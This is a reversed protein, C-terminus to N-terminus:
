NLPSCYEHDIGGARVTVCATDPLGFADFADQVATPNDKCGEDNTSFIDGVRLGDDGASRIQITCLDVVTEDWVLRGSLDEVDDVTLPHVYLIMLVTHIGPGGHDLDIQWDAPTLVVAKDAPTDDLFEGVVVFRGRGIIRDDLVAADIGWAYSWGYPQEYPGDWTIGDTSFWMQGNSTAAETEGLVIWGRAGAAIKAAHAFPVDAREWGLGDDSVWIAGGDGTVRGAAVLRGDRTVIDYVIAYRGFPSEESVPEWTNGDTSFWVLPGCVSMNPNAAGRRPTLAIFGGNTAVVPRLGAVVYEGDTSPSCAVDTLHQIAHPSPPQEALHFDTGDASYFLQDDRIAVIGNPGVVLQNAGNMGLSDADDIRLHEEEVWQIGDWTLRVVGFRNYVILDNGDSAFGYSTPEISVPVESWTVGDDSWFITENTDSIAVVGHATATISWPLDFGQPPGWTTFEITGISTSLPDLTVVPVLRVTPLWGLAEIFGNAVTFFKREEQEWGEQDEPEDGPVSVVVQLYQNRPPVGFASQGFGGNYVVV